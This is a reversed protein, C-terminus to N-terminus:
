FRMNDLDDLANQRRAWRLDKSTPVYEFNDIHKHLAKETCGLLKLAQRFTIPDKFRCLADLVPKWKSKQKNPNLAHNRGVKYGQNFGTIFSTIESPTLERVTRNSDRDITCPLMAKKLGKKWEDVAKRRASLLRKTHHHKRALYKVKRKMLIDRIFNM